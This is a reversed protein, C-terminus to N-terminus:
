HVKTLGWGEMWSGVWEGSVGKLTRMSVSAAKAKEVSMTMGGETAGTDGSHAIGEYFELLKLGPNRVTDPQQGSAEASEGLAKVWEQFSVVKTGHPMREMIAPLLSSYPVPTPNALNYVHLTSPPDNVGSIALEVLTDAMTDVPFWDIMTSVDASDATAGVAGLSSPLRKLYASSIALSPFWEQKNWVGGRRIVPGSVQGVRCIAARVGSQAAARELLQESIEKSEAYGILLPAHFDHVPEEPAQPSDPHLNAWNGVTSVTSTFLIPPNNRSSAALEILNRVGQVHPEFSSLALNFDVQWQNHIIVSAKSRLTALDSDFLGLTSQSLDAHLFTARNGWDVSLSRAASAKLQRNYGDSSRNLCVVRSVQKSQLLSDLLYSGLSGTSGTLIVTLGEEGFKQQKEPLHASYRELMEGMSALQAEQESADNALQNTLAHLAKALKTATPNSYILSPTIKKLPVTVKEAQIQAKLQRVAAFVGQSDFGSVFIDQDPKPSQLDSVRAFIDLIANTTDSETANQLLSFNFAEAQGSGEYVAIIEEEYAAVTRKRIPTGKDARVMPKDASMFIIHDKALKAFKPMNENAHKLYPSLKQLLESRALTQVSPDLEVLAAVEFRGHGIVLVDHVEHAEKLMDQLPGPVVKEGNSLVLVDDSRGQIRWLNPKTPHKAYLDKTSYESADPFTYFTIHYPDTQEDRVLVLEYLDDGTPRFDLAKLNPDFRFYDWDDPDRAYSPYLGVETSGILSGLPAHQRILEGAEHALPGGAFWVAKLNNLKTLMEPEATMEDLLSPPCSLSEFEAHELADFLLQVNIQAGAPPLLIPHNFFVNFFYQTLGAAAHFPPFISLDLNSQSMSEMIPTWKESSPLLHHADQSAASSETWVITKPPGTSGSSHLILLPDHKAEEFTKAFPYQPEDSQVDLVESVSPVVIHQIQREAQIRKADFNADSLFVNCNTEELIHLHHALSNRSSPLLLKYGAKAAAPALIHYRVDTPGVYAITPFDDGSTGITRELWWATKDIAAAYDHYTLDRLKSSFNPGTPFRAFLRTPDDRAIQDIVSPYLRQGYAPQQTHNESSPQPM